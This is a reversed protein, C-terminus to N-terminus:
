LFRVRPLFGPCVGSLNCVNCSVKYIVNMARCFEISNIGDLIYSANPCVKCRANKCKRCFLHPPLSHFLNTNSSGLIRKKNFNKYRAFCRKTALHKKGTALFKSLVTM